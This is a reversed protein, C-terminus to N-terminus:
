FLVQPLAHTPLCYLSLFEAPPSLCSFPLGFSTRTPLFSGKICIVSPSPRCSSTRLQAFAKPHRIVLAMYLFTATWPRILRRSLSCFGQM